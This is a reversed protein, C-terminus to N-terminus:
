VQDGVRGVADAETARPTTKVILPVHLLSFVLFPHSTSLRYNSRYAPQVAHLKVRRSRNGGFLSSFSTASSMTPVLRRTVNEELNGKGSETHRTYTYAYAYAHASRQPREV